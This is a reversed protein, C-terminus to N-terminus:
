VVSKRDSTLNMTMSGLSSFHHLAPIFRHLEVLSLHRLVIWALKQGVRRAERRAPEHLVAIDDRPIKPRDLDFPHRKAIYLDALYLFLTTYPCLTHLM